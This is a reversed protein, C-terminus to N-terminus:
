GRSCRHRCPMGLARRGRCQNREGRAMGTQGLHLDLHGPQGIRDCKRVGHRGPDHARREIHAAQNGRFCDPLPREVQGTFVTAHIDHVVQVHLGAGRRRRRALQVAHQRAVGSTGHGGGEGLMRAAELDFCVGRSAKRNGARDRGVFFLQRDAPTQAAQCSAGAHDVVQFHRRGRPFALGPDVDAGVANLLDRNLDNAPRHNLPRGGGNGRGWM